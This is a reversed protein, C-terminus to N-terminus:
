KKQLLQKYKIRKVEQCSESSKSSFPSLKTYLYVVLYIFSCTFSHYVVKEFTNIYASSVYM